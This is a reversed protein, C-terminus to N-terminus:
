RPPRPGFEPESNLVLGIGFSEQTTDNFTFVMYQGRIGLGQAPWLSVGAVFMPMESRDLRAYPDDPVANIDMTDFLQHVRFRAMMGVGAGADFLELFAFDLRLEGLALAGQYERADQEWDYYHASQMVVGGGANVGLRALMGNRYMFSGFSLYGDFMKTRVSHLGFPTPVDIDAVGEMYDAGLGLIGTVWRNEDTGTTLEISAIREFRFQDSLWGDPLTGSDDEPYDYPPNMQYLAHYSLDLLQAPGSVALMLLGLIVLVAERATRHM